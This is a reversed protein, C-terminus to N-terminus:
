FYQIAICVMRKVNEMKLQLAQSQNVCPASQCEVIMLDVSQVTPIRLLKPATPQVCPSFILCAIFNIDNVFAWISLEATSLWCTTSGFSVLLSFYVDCVDCVGSHCHMCKVECVLVCLIQVVFVQACVFM